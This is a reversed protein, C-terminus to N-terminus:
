TTVGETLHPASSRRWRAKAREINRLRWRPAFPRRRMEGDSWEEGCKLCTLDWGYWPAHFGVAFTRRKCTPCDIRMLHRLDTQPACIHLGSM